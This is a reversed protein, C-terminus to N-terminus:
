APSAPAIAAIALVYAMSYFWLRLQNARM